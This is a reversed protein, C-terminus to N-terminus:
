QVKQRQQPTKIPTVWGTKFRTLAKLAKEQYTTEIFMLHQYTTSNERIENTRILELGTLRMGNRQFDREREPTWSVDKGQYAKTIVAIREAFQRKLYATVADAKAPSFNRAVRQEIPIDGGLDLLLTLTRGASKFALKALEKVLKKEASKLANELLKDLSPRMPLIKNVELEVVAAELEADTYHKQNAM